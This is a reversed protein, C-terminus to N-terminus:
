SQISVPWCQRHQGLMQCVNPQHRSISVGATHGALMIYQAMTPKINSWRRRRQGLM